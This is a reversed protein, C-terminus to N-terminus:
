TVSLMPLNATLDGCTNLVSIAARQIISLAGLHARPAPRPQFPTPTSPNIELFNVLGRGAGM